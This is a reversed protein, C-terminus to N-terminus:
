HSDHSKIIQTNSNIHTNKHNPLHDFLLQKIDISIKTLPADAKHLLFGNGMIPHGENGENQEEYDGEEEEEEEDEEEEEEEMQIEQEQQLQEEEGNQERVHNPNSYSHYDLDPIQEVEEEDEMVSDECCGDNGKGVSDNYQETSEKCRRNLSYKSNTMFDDRVELTQGNGNKTGGRDEHGNLRISRKGKWSGASQGTRLKKGNAKQKKKGVRLKKSSVSSVPKSSESNETRQKKSRIIRNKLRGVEEDNMIEVSSYKTNFIINISQQKQTKQKKEDNCFGESKKKLEEAIHHKEGRLDFPDNKKSDVDPKKRKKNKKKGSKKKLNESIMDVESSEKKLNQSMEQPSGQQPNEINGPLIVVPSAEFEQDQDEVASIPKKQTHSRLKRVFEKTDEQLEEKM